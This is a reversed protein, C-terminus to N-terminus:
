GFRLGYALYKGLFSFAGDPHIYMLYSFCPRM